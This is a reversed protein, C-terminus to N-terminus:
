MTRALASVQVLNGYAREFGRCLEFVDRLGSPAEGLQNVAKELHTRKETLREIVQLHLSFVHHVASARMGCCKKSDRQGM